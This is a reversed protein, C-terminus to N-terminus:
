SRPMEDVKLVGTSLKKQAEVRVMLKDTKLDHLRAARWVRQSAWPLTGESPIKEPKSIGGAYFLADDLQQLSTSVADGGMHLVQGEFGAELADVIANCMQTVAALINEAM